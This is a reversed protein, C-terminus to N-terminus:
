SYQTICNPSTSAEGCPISSCMQSDEISAYSCYIYSKYMRIQAMMRAMQGITFEHSCEDPIYSMVNNLPDLGPASDCSDIPRPDDCCQPFDLDDESLSDFPDDSYKPCNTDTTNICCAACSDSGCTKSCTEDTFANPTRTGGYQSEGIDRDKDYPLLGPCGSSEKTDHIPTDPVQDGGSVKSLWCGGQFTHFLGFLHGIEHALVASRSRWWRAHSVLEGNANPECLFNRDDDYCALARYDLLVVNHQPDTPSFTDTISARGSFQNSECVIAHFQFMWDSTSAVIDRILGASLAGCDGDFSIDAHEIIESTRFTAFEISEKSQRDYITFLKNTTNTAFAAQLLTLSPIGPGGNDQNPLVHYVIPIDRLQYM